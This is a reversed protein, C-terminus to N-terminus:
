PLEGLDLRWELAVECEIWAGNGAEENGALPGARWPSGADGEPPAALVAGVFEFRLCYRHLGDGDRGLHCLDSERGPDIGLAELEARRTPDLAQDRQAAYNRCADCGCVDAAPPRARAARRGAAPDCRVTWGAVSREEM